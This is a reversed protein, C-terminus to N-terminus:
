PSRSPRAVALLDRDVEAKDVEAMDIEQHPFAKVGIAGVEDAGRDAVLESAVGIGDLLRDRPAREFEAEPTDAPSSSSAALAAPRLSLM